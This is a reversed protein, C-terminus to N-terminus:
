LEKIQEVMQKWDKNNVKSKIMLLLYGFNYNTLIQKNEAIGDAFGIPGDLIINNEKVSFNFDTLKM